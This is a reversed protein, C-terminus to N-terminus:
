RITVGIVEYKVGICELSEKLRYLIEKFALNDLESNNQLRYRFAREEGKQLIMSPSSVATSFKLGHDKIVMKIDSNVEQVQIEEIAQVRVYVQYSANNTPNNQSTYTFKNMVQEISDLRDILYKTVDIEGVSSQQMITQAEIARYIPNDPNNEKLSESIYKELGEGLDLVGQMDNTYFITREDVIDFPLQTGVECIQIVPKRIAHRIALEYMVNPNLTTLNAIVLDDEIIRTILQKNISGTTSIRHAVSINQEDFGAEVLKPVIVADIVGEAARRIDTNNGGIPTIIFVKKESNDM